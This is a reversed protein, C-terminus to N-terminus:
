LPDLKSMQTWLFECVQQVQTMIHIVGRKVVLSNNDSNKRIM